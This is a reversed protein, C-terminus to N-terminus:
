LTVLKSLALKSAAASRSQRPTTLWVMARSNGKIFSFCVSISLAAISMIRFGLQMFPM